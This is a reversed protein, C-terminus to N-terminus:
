KKEKKPKTGISYRDRMVGVILETRSTVGFKELLHKMHSKITDVHRNLVSAIEENSAGNQLLIDLVVLETPTVIVRRRKDIPQEAM